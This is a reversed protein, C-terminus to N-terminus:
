GCTSIAGTSEILETKPPPKEMSIGMFGLGIGRYVMSVWTLGHYLKDVILVPVDNRPRTSVYTRSSGTVNSARRGKRRAPASRNGSM